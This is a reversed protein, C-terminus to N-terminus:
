PDLAVFNLYGVISLSLFLVYLYSSRRESEKESEKPSVRANAEGEQANRFVDLVVVTTIAFCGPSFPSEARERDLMPRLSYIRVRM